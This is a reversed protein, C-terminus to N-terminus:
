IANVSFTCSKIILLGICFLTIMILSFYMIEFNQKQITDVFKVIYNQLYLNNTDSLM